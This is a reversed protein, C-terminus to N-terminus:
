PSQQTDKPGLPSGALLEPSRTFDCLSDNKKRKGRHEQEMNEKEKHLTTRYSALAPGKATQRLPAPEESAPEGHHCKTSGVM